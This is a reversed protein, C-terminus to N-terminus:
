FVKSERIIIKGMYVSAMLFLRCGMMLVYSGKIKEFIRTLRSRNMVCVEGLLLAEFGKLGGYTM